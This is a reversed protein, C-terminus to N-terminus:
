TVITFLTAVTYIALIPNTTREATVEPSHPTIDWFIYNKMLAIAREASL